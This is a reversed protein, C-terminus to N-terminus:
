TLGVTKRGAHLGLTPVSRDAQFAKRRKVCITGDQVSTLSVCRVHPEGYSSLTGIRQRGQATMDYFLFLGLKETIGVCMGTKPGAGFPSGSFSVSGMALRAAFSMGWTHDLPIFYGNGVPM